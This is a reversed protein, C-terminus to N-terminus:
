HSPKGRDNGKRGALAVVAMVAATVAGGAPEQTTGSYFSCASALLRGVYGDGDAELSDARCSVHVAMDLFTRTRPDSLVERLSVAFSERDLSSGSMAYLDDETYGLKGLLMRPDEPVPREGRVELAHGIAARVARASAIGIDSGTGTYSVRREGIPSIVAVADSTTGTERFGRAAMAASKAEVVPLLINVKGEVTLPEPCILVTNITGAKMRAARELSVRHREQWNELPDGAVVHNSLGATAAAVATHGNFEGEALNFVYDVEAATMMGMTDGPLGLADRVRAAHSAPDPEDYDKRVQMIFFASIVRDGGNLVASSLCEMPETLRM